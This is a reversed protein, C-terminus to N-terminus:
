WVIKKGERILSQLEYVQHVYGKVEKNNDIWCLVAVPKGDKKFKGKEVQEHHGHNFFGDSYVELELHVEQAYGKIKVLLDPFATRVRIIEDIGLEKHGFVVAALLEQECRPERKLLPIKNADLQHSRAYDRIKAFDEATIPVIAQNNWVRKPSLLDNIPPVGVPKRPQKGFEQGEIM